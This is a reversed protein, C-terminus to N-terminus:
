RRGTLERNVVWGLAVGLLGGVTNTVLDSVACVRGPIMTQTLEICLPLLPASVLAPWVRHTAVVLSLTVPLTLLANLLDAVLGGGTHFVVFGVTPSQAPICARLGAARAEAGPTLTLSLVLTLVLLTAVTWCPRWGRLRALPRWLLASLAVGGVLAVATWWSVPVHAGYVDV